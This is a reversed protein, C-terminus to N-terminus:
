FFVSVAVYGTAPVPGFESRPAGGPAARADGLALYAGARLGAEDSLSWSFAPAVLSSRDRLDTLVLAEVGLLPRVQWAARALAVDRGLVQLEGRAAAASALVAALREPRAAGFDDHQYEFVLHLDRGALSVRRDGGVAARLAVGGPHGARRLEAEARVASGGLAGAAGLAGAPEGHLSGGWASLDWGVLTSKARAALTANRGTGGAVRGVLDLETFAGASVRLRAADVGARYERFPDSPDFPAFPDAPTLLLTTAWSIPQRGVRVDVAGVRWGLSLRDLRDTWRVHGREVLTGQIPLWDGNAGAASAGGILAALPAAGPQSRVLLTQEYAADAEFDGFTPAAMLRLRQFLSAGGTAIANSGSATGLSLSYARLIRGAPEGGSQAAVGAPAAALVAALAM